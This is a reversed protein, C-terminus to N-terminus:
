SPFPFSLSLPRSVPLPGSISALLFVMASVMGFFCYTRGQKSASNTTTLIRTDLTVGPVSLFYPGTVLEAVAIVKDSDGPCEGTRVSTM